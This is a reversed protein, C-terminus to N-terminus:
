NGKRYKIEEHIEKPNRSKLYIIYENFIKNNKFVQVNCLIFYYFLVLFTMMYLLGMLIERKLSNRLGYTIIFFFLLYKKTAQDRNDYIIYEGLIKLKKFVRVNHGSSPGALSSCSLIISNFIFDSEFSITIFM